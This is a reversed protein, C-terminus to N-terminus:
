AKAQDLAEIEDTRAQQRTEFNHLIYDCESHLEKSYQNLDELDGGIATLDEKARVLDADASAVRATKDTIEAQLSKIENGSDVMFQEYAEQAEQEAAFAEKEVHKSENVINEIM